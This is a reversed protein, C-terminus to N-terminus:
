GYYSFENLEIGLAAGCKDLFIPTSKPEIVQNGKPDPMYRPWEKDFDIIIAFRNCLGGPQPSRAGTIGNVIEATQDQPRFNLGCAPCIRRIKETAIWGLSGEYELNCGCNCTPNVQKAGGGIVDTHPNVFDDSLEILLQHPWGKDGRAMPETVTQMPYTADPSRDWQILACPHALARLSEEVPPILFPMWFDSRPPKQARGFLREWFGKPPEPTQHQKLAEDLLPSTKFRAGTESSRRGAKNPDQAQAKEPRVVFGMEAWVEILAVIRDPEPRVTNDRPIIYHCYRIGM